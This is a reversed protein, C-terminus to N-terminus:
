HKPAGACRALVRRTIDASSPPNEGLGLTHLIEHILSAIVYDPQVAQVQKLQDVCVYVVRSGPATFALGGKDCRSSRTGDYFFLMNVYQDFDVQLSTLREELSRGDRDSFDLLVQRCGTHEFRAVAENLASVTMRRALPDPIRVLRPDREEAAAAAVTSITLTLAILRAPVGGLPRTPM